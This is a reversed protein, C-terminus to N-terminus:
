LLDHKILPLLYQYLGVMYGIAILISGVVSLRTFLNLTSVHEWSKALYFIPMCVLGLSNLPSQKIMCLNGIIGVSDVSTPHENIPIIHGITLYLALIIHGVVVHIQSGILTFFGKYWYGFALLGYGICEVLNGIWLYMSKTYSAFHLYTIIYLIFGASLLYHCLKNAYTNPDKGSLVTNM